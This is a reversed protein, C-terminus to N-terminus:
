ENKTIKKIKTIKPSNIFEDEELFFDVQNKKNEPDQVINDLSGSSNNEPAYSNRKNINIINFNETINVGSKAKLMGKKIKPLNKQPSKFWNNITTKNLSVEGNITDVDSKETKMKNVYDILEKQNNPIAKKDNEEVQLIQLMKSFGNGLRYAKDGPDRLPYKNWPAYPNNDKLDGIYSECSACINYNIPKKALLWNENKTNEIINANYSYDNQNITYNINQNGDNNDVTIQIQNEEQSEPSYKINM